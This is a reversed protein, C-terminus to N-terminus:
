LFFYVSKVTSSVNMIDGLDFTNPSVVYKYMHVIFENM